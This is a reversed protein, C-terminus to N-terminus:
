AESDEFNLDDGEKWDKPVYNWIDDLPVSMMLHKFRGKPIDECKGTEYNIKGGLKACTQEVSLGDFGLRVSSLKLNKYPPHLKRYERRILERVAESLSIGGGDVCVQDLMGREKITLRVIIQSERSTIGNKSVM